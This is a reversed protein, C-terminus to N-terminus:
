RITGGTITLGTATAPTAGLVYGTRGAVATNCTGTGASPHPCTYRTYGPAATDNIIDTGVILHHATIEPCIENIVWDIDAGDKTNNWEYSPDSVMGIGRGLQDLCPYGKTIVYTEGNSFTSNGSCSSGLSSNLTLTDSTNSSILAICNASTISGESTNHVYFGAYNNVTWGAGTHTMSTSGGGTATGSTGSSGPQNGDYPNSGDCKGWTSVSSCSRENTTYVRAWWNGRLTNNYIYHSGGKVNLGTSASVANSYMDNNYIESSVPARYDGTANAHLGPGQGVFYNYRVVMRPGDYTDIPSDSDRIWNFTNNEIYVANADGWSHAASWSTTGNGFLTVGQEGSGLAATFTNNDILGYNEGGSFRWVLGRGGINIFNNNHIRHNTGTGELEVIATKGTDNLSDGDFTFGTLVVQHGSGVIIKFMATTLNTGDKITLSDKGAGQIILGKSSLDVQLTTSWTCPSGTAPIYVTDGESGSTLATAFAAAVDTSSCSASSFTAAWSVNAILLICLIQFLTRMNFHGM